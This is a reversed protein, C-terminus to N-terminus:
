WNDQANDKGRLSAWIASSRRQRSSSLMNVHVCTLMDGDYKDGQSWLFCDASKHTRSMPVFKERNDKKLIFTWKQCPDQHRTLVSVIINELKDYDSWGLEYTRCDRWKAYYKTPSAEIDTYFTAASTRSDARDYNWLPAEREDQTWTSWIIPSIKKDKQM